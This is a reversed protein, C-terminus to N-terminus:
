NFPNPTPPLLCPPWVTPGMSVLLPHTLTQMWAAPLRWLPHCVCLSLRHRLFIQIHKTQLKYEIENFTMYVNYLLMERTEQRCRQHETNYVTKVLTMECHRGVQRPRAICHVTLSSRSQTRIDYWHIYISILSFIDENTYNSGRRLKKDTYRPKIWDTYITICTCKTLGTKHLDSRRDCNLASSIQQQQTCQIVQCQWRM